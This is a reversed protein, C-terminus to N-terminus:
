MEGTWSWGVAGHTQNGRAEGGRVAQSDHWRCGRLHRERSAVPHTALTLSPLPVFNIRDGYADGVWRWRGRGVGEMFM